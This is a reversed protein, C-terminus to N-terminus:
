FTEDSDYQDIETDSLTNFKLPITRNMEESDLDEEDDNDDDNDDRGDGESESNISLDDEDNHLRHRPVPMDGRRNGGRGREWKDDENISYMMISKSDDVSTSVKRKALLSELNSIRTILDETLMAQHLNVGGQSLPMSATAPPSGFFPQPTTYSHSQLQKLQHPQQTPQSLVSGRRPVNFSKQLKIPIQTTQQQTTASQRRQHNHTKRSFVRNISPVQVQSQTLVKELKTDAAPNAVGYKRNLLQDIFFSDTSATRLQGGLTSISQHNKMAQRKNVKIAVVEQSMDPGGGVSSQDSFQGDYDNSIFVFHKLDVNESTTTGSKRKKFLVHMIAEYVVIIGVLPMQFLQCYSSVVGSRQNLQGMKFYLVLNNSKFYNFEHEINERTKTFVGSLCIALITGVIFQILFLYSMQMIKGLTNFDDWYNWVSPTFGFFIKLMNFLVDQKTQTHSLTIFTFYFGSILTFFFLVLGILNFIMKHFSLLILNFFRYNNFVSLIRPFLIIGILSFTDHYYQPWRLIFKFTFCLDIILIFLLDIHNWIVLNLFRHDINFLKTFVECNFSLALLWFYLEILLPSSKPKLVMIFYVIAFNILKLNILVHQYKPVLQSRNMIRVISFKNRSDDFITEEIDSDGDIDEIDCDTTFNCNRNNSDGGAVMNYRSPHQKRAGYKRGLLASKEDDRFQGNQYYLCSGGHVLDGNYFRKLIHIVIPQSLFRKSESLISLELTNVDMMGMTAMNNNNNNDSNTDSLGQPPKIFLMEIRQWSRYERLMRIAILECVNAKTVLLDFCILNNESQILYEYRLLLLIYITFTSIKLRSKPDILHSSSTALQSQSRDTISIIEVIIPKILTSLIEPTKLQEFKLSISVNINILNQIQFYYSKFNILKRQQYQEKATPNANLGM